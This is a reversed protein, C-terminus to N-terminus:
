YGNMWGAMWRDGAYRCGDEEIDWGEGGMGKRDESRGYEVREDRAWGVLFMGGSGGRGWRVVVRSVPDGLEPGRTLFLV